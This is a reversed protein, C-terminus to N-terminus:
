LNPNLRRMAEYYAAMSQASAAQNPDGLQQILLETPDTIQPSSGIGSDFAQAQVVQQSVQQQGAELRNLRSEQEAFQEMAQQPIGQPIRQPNIGYRTAVQQAQTNAQQTQVQTSYAGYLQQALRQGRAFAQDQPIGLQIDEQYQRQAAQNAQNAIQSIQAQQQQAAVEERQQEWASRQSELQQVQAQSDQLQQQLDPQPQPQLPAPQVPAPQEILPQQPIPQQPVPQQIQPEAIPAQAPPMPMTVAADRAADSPTPMPGNMFDAVGASMDPPPQAVPVSPGGPLGPNAGNTTM